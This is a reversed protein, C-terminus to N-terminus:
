EDGVKNYDAPNIAITTADLLLTRDVGLIKSLETLEAAELDPVRKPKGYQEEIAMARKVFGPFIQAMIPGLQNMSDMVYPSGSLSLQRSAYRQGLPTDFFAELGSLEELTFEVALARSMGERYHPEILAGMQVVLGQTLAVMAALREDRAPDIIALAEAVKEDSLGDFEAEPLGTALSLAARPGGDFDGMVGDMMPALMGEMAQSFPGPPLLQNAVRQAVPLREEQEPTFDPLAIPFFELDEFLDAVDEPAPDPEEGAQKAPITVSYPQAAAPVSLAVAGAALVGIITKKM